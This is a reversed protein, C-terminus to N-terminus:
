QKVFIVLNTLKKGFKKVNQRDFLPRPAEDEGRGGTFVPRLNIYQISIVDEKLFLQDRSNLITPFVRYKDFM